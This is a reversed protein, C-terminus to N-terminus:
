GDIQSLGLCHSGSHCKKHYKGTGWKDLKSGVWLVKKTFCRSHNRNGSILAQCLLFSIVLFSNLKQQWNPLVTQVYLLSPSWLQLGVGWGWGMLLLAALCAVNPSKQAMFAVCCSAWGPTVYPQSINKVLLPVTYDTGACHDTGAKWINNGRSSEWLKKM